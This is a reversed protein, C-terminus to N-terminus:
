RQRGQPRSDRLRHPIGSRAIHRRHSGAAARRHLAASDVHQTPSNNRALAQAAARHLDRREAPLMDAYVAERVLDHRFVLRDGDGTILGAISADRLWAAIDIVSRGTVTALDALTFSTGVLSALRLLERTEAALWSLRRVLTQNLNSSTVSAPVEAIGSEIRVLGEDDFSRLLESVFLPNGGTAQLRSRLHQGPAAGTIAACLAHLDIEDLARLRLHAGGSDVLADITRDLLEPHPTPRLSIVVGFQASRSRMILSRIVSLSLDDAWHADEVILLAPGATALSEVADVSADVIAFSLDGPDGDDPPRHLLGRLHERQRDPVRGHDTLGHPVFGARRTVEDAVMEVVQVGASRAMASVVRVLHTKGIGAEGELAVAGGAGAVLSSVFEQLRVLEDVRGITGRDPGGTSADTAQWLHWRDAFGKLHQHGRDSFGISPM